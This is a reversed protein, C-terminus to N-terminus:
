DSIEKCDPNTLTVTGDDAVFAGQGFIEFGILAPNNPIFFQMELIGSGGITGALTLRIKTPDIMIVQDVTPIFSSGTALFGVVNDGPQGIFSLNSDDGIKAGGGIEFTEAALEITDVNVSPSGVSGNWMGTISVMEGNFPNLNIGSTLQANTCDVFFQNTTGSVDEVKGVFSVQQANTTAAFLLAAALSLAKKM